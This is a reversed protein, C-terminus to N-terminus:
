VNKTALKRTLFQVVRQISDLNEPIMEAPEIKVDYTNELFMILELMGTSDIIGSSLFSTDEQLTGAEGFLFNTVIFDRIEKGYNMTQTKNSNDTMPPNLNITL